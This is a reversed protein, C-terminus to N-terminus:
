FLSPYAAQIQQLTVGKASGVDRCAADPTPNAAQAAYDHYSELTYKLASFAQFWTMIEAQCQTVVITLSGPSANVGASPTGVKLVHVNTFITKTAVKSGVTVTAIVTIYDNEQPYFAVGQQESTPITLAVYGTPINLYASQIGAAQSPRAVENATLAQGAQIGVLPVMGLVDQTRTFYIKPYSAPVPITKLQVSADSIAVRPSLDKAAVVVTM